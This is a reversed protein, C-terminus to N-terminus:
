VPLYEELHTLPVNCRLAIAYGGGMDRNEVRVIEGQGALHVPRVAQKSHVSLVFTVATHEPISLASRVLLGGLSVNRSVGELETIGSTSQFKMQVPFELEFRRYRRGRWDSSRISTELRYM